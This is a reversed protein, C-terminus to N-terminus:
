RAAVVATAGDLDECGRAPASNSDSRDDHVRRPLRVTFTSGEGELSEVEVSGGHMEVLQKVLTLGIGSGAIGACSQSRFYRDFVNPLDKATIGMGHDRISISIQDGDIMGFVAIESNDPSYKVANSVLNTFIQELFQANGLVTEQIGVLDTSIKHSSDIQNQRKCVQEILHALEVPMRQMEATGADLKTLNLTSEILGIMRQVANRVTGMHGGIDESGLNNLRRVIRQATMDIISLPTRFEHSVMTVFERQLANYEKQTELAQELQEAKRSVEETRELVRQELESNLTRLSEEARLREDVQRELEENQGAIEKRNTLLHQHQSKLIRDARRVILFLAFYIASLILISATVVWVQMREIKSLLPTVDDYLEFVGEIVGDTGRIPVYSAIVDRDEIVNEFASFTDRHTLESAVTGSFASLFGANASKDDGIQSEETSFVTMGTSDYIKVKIVSLGRLRGLVTERLQKTKPHARLEDGTSGAVTTVHSRFSPWISNALAGALAVNATEGHEVLHQITVHHYLAALLVTASLLVVASTLSFYRLLKFM